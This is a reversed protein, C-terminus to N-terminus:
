MINCVTKNYVNDLIFDIIGRPNLRTLLDYVSGLLAYAKQTLKVFSMPVIHNKISM